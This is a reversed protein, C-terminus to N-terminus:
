NFRIVVIVIFIFVIVFHRSEQFAMHNVLANDFLFGRCSFKFSALTQAKIVRYRNLLKSSILDQPM